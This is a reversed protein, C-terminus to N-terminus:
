VYNIRLCVEAMAKIRLATDNTLLVVQGDIVNKSFLLACNLVHDGNTPCSMLDNFGSGYSSLALHVHRPSVPPTAVGFQPNEASNQVHVWTPFKIMCSEIWKLVVDPSMSARDKRKCVELERIVPLCLSCTM